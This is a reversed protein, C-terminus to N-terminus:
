VDWSQKTQKEARRGAITDRNGIEASGAASASDVYGVTSGFVGALGTGCCYTLEATQHNPIGQSQMGSSWRQKTAGRQADEPTESQPGRQGNKTEEDGASGRAASMVIFAELLLLM